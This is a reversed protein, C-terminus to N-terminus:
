LVAYMGRCASIDVEAEQAILSLPILCLATVFRFLFKTM